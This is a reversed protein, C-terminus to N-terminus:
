PLASEGTLVKKIAEAKLLCEEWEKEPDSYFTIGSGVKYTLYKKRSNYMISRIVVNLDFDGNPDIYGVSGSFIGRTGKEYEEILEMVRLKPAGTMSGMPFTSGIIQSFKLRPKLRGSVTSIMQHVQPYTYVGFLEDVEVSSPECIRSLDNRVMDVVMVNEAQDKSSRRLFEKLKMDERVDKGRKNTGKMPQSVIEDGKKMMFREPSACVLYKEQMKYLASFPTPSLATLKRYVEIPNVLAPEAFFEQCFNIEYCDGRLIHAKLQEVKELYEHRLMGNNISIGRVGEAEVREEKMIAAYVEHPDIADITLEEGRLQLLISPIFFFLLPFGAPDIKDPPHLDFIINKLEYSLHGFKWGDKELFADLDELEESHIQDKAGAALLCEYRTPEQQYHHNDLFCFINFRSAWSLM